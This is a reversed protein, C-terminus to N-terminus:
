WECLGERLALNRSTAPVFRVIAGRTAGTPAQSEWLRRRVKPVAPKIEPTGKRSMCYAIRWLSERVVRRWSMLRALRSRM